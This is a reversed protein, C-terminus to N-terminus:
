GHNREVYSQRCWALFGLGLVEYYIEGIIEQYVKYTMPFKTRITQSVM